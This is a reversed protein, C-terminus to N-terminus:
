IELNFGISATYDATSNNLGMSLITSLFVGSQILYNYGLGIQRPSATGQIITSYSDFALLFSHRKNKLTYGIGASFTFPDKLSSGEEKGLFLYGLQAYILFHNMYKRSGVAIQFDFQDTGIGLKESATPFKVYGDISFSPLYFTEDVIQFSGNLYTDGLGFVPSDMMTGDPSRMHNFNNFRDGSSNGMHNNPVFTNEIQTFSNTSSIVLPVNLSLYISQSQYTIGNYFFFSNHVSGDDFSSGVTQLSTNFYWKGQANSGASTMLFIIVTLYISSSYKM